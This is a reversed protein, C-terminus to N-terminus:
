PGIKPKIEPLKPEYEIEGTKLVRAWHDFYKELEYKGIPTKSFSAVTKVEIRLPKQNKGHALAILDCSGTPACNRFVMYGKIMLDTIVMHESITGQESRSINANYNMKTILANKKIQNKERQNCRPSCFKQNRSPQWLLKNCIKCYRRKVMIRREGSNRM